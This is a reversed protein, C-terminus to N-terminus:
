NPMLRNRLARCSPSMRAITTQSNMPAPNEDIERVVDGPSVVEVALDPAGPWFGQPPSEPPIREQGVFALDPARVTDPDRHILFGTEAGFALGLGRDTVFQDLLTSLRLTVAGHESGAPSMSQLEGKVLEYRVKGRPLKLLEDATTTHSATSM